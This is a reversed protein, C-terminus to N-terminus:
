TADAFLREFRTEVSRGEPSDIHRLTDGIIDRQENVAQEGIEETLVERLRAFRQLQSALDDFRSAFGDKSPEADSAFVHEIPGGDLDVRVIVDALDHLLRGVALVRQEIFVHLREFKERFRVREHADGAAMLLQEADFEARLSPPLANLLEFYGSRAIFPEGKKITEFDAKPLLRYGRCFHVHPRTTNRVITLSYWMTDLDLEEPLVSAGELEVETLKVDEAGDGEIPIIRAITATATFRVQEWGELFLVTDGIGMRPTRRSVITLAKHDPQIEVSKTGGRAIWYRKM